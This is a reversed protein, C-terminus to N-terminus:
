IYHQHQDRIKSDIISYDLYGESFVDETSSLPNGPINASITIRTRKGELLREIREADDIEFYPYSFVSAPEQTLTKIEIEANYKGLLDRLEILLTNM